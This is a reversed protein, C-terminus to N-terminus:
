GCGCCLDVVPCRETGFSYRQDLSEKLSWIWVDLPVRKCIEFPGWMWGKGFCFEREEGGLTSRTAYTVAHWRWVALQVLWFCLLWEQSREGEGWRRCEWDTAIDQANPRDFEKDQWDGRGDNPRFQWWAEGPICWPGGLQDGQINEGSRLGNEVVPSITKSCLVEDQWEAELFENIVKWQEQSSNWCGEDGAM